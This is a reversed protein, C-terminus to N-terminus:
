TKSANESGRAEGERKLKLQDEYVQKPSSPVLTIYKGYKVLTYRNRLGDYIKRM